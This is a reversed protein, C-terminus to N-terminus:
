RHVATQLDAEKNWEKYSPRRLAVYALRIDHGSPAVSYGRGSNSLLPSSDQQLQDVHLAGTFLGHVLSACAFIEPLSIWQVTGDGDRRDEYLSPLNM